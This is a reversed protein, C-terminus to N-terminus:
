KGACTADRVVTLTICTKLLRCWSSSNVLSTSLMRFLLRRSSSLRLLPALSLPQITSSISVKSLVECSLNRSGRPGLCQLTQGHNILKSRTLKSIPNHYIKKKDNLVKTIVANVKDIGNEYAIKAPTLTGQEVKSHIDRLEAYAEVVEPQDLIEIFDTIDLSTVYPESRYSLESYMTNTIRYAHWALEYRFQLKQDENMPESLVDYISWVASGLLALHTGSGSRKGKLIYGVHHRMLMPAGPYQRHLEWVYSSYIVEKWNTQLEGDDFVLTFEGTLIDYLDDPQVPILKRASVRMM